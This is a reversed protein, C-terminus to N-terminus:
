ENHLNVKAWAVAREYREQRSVPKNSEPSTRPSASNTLTRGDATREPASRSKGQKKMLAEVVPALMKELTGNLNKAVEAPKVLEGEPNASAMDVATKFLSQVTDQPHSAYYASLYDLGDDPKSMYSTLDGRYREQFARDSQERERAEISKKYEANEKEIRDLRALLKHETNGPKGDVPLSGYFLGIIDDDTADEGLLERAAELPAERFKRRRDELKSEKDSIDKHKGDVQQRLELLEAKQKEYMERSRAEARAIAALGDSPTSTAGTAPAAEAPPAGGSSNTDAPVAEPAEAAYAQALFETGAKLRDEKNSM